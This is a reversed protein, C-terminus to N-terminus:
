APDNHPRTHGRLQRLCTAINFDIDTIMTSTQSLDLVTKFLVIGQVYIDEAM